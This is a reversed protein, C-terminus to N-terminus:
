ELLSAADTDALDTRIEGPEAELAYRPRGKGVPSSDEPRREELAGAAVLENLARTVDAESLGGISHDDAGELLDRSATRIESADAPLRDDDTRLFCSLVVRQVFTTSEPNIM